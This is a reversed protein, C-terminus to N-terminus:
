ATRALLVSRTAASVPKFAKLVLYQGFVPELAERPLWRLFWVLDRRRLHRRYVTPEVFHPFLRRLRRRTLASLPAPAKDTTLWYFWAKPQAPVVALVKGGPKLVRFLEQVVRDPQPVTHLLGQVCVVDIANDALPLAIPAAHFFQGPLGRLRFNQQILALEQARPNCVIVKAGGRAYAVWDTGLGHGLGLVTEGEHKGFELLRPLWYGQAFYRLREVSLFWPLSFAEPDDGPPHRLSEDHFLRQALDLTPPATPLAPEDLPLQPTAAPSLASLRPRGRGTAAQWFVRPRM